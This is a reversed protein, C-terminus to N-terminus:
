GLVYALVFGIEKDSLGTKELAEKVRHQKHGHCIGYIENSIDTDEDQEIGLKGAISSLYHAENLAWELNSAYWEAEAKKEFASRLISHDGGANQIGAPDSLDVETVKVLAEAEFVGFM